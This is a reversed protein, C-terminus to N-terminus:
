RIGDLSKKMERNFNARDPLKNQFEKRLRPSVSIDGPSGAVGEVSIESFDFKEFKKYEYNVKKQAFATVSFFVCVLFLFKM